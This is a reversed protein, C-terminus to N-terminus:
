PGAVRLAEFNAIAQSIIRRTPTASQTGMIGFDDGLTKIWTCHMIM